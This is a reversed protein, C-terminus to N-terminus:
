RRRGVFMGCIKFVSARSFLNTCFEDVNIYDPVPLYSVDLLPGMERKLLLM